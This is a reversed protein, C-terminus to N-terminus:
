SACNESASNGPHFWRFHIDKEQDYTAKVPQGCNECIGTIDVSADVPKAIRDDPRRSALWRRVRQMTDADIMWNPVGGMLMLGGERPILTDANYRTVFQGWPTHHYRTDYFEVQRQASAAAPYAAIEGPQLDVVKFKVGNLAVVTLTRPEASM